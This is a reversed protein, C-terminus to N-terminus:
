GRQRRCAAILRAPLPSPNIRVTGAGPVTAEIANQGTLVDLEPMGAAFTGAWVHADGTPVAEVPLREMHGNGILAVIASAGADAPAIRILVVANANDRQECELAMLARENANGYVIRGPQQTRAWFADESDPSALPESPASRTPAPRGREAYTDSAPPQCAALGGLAALAAFRRM